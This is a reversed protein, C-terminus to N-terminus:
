VIVIEINHKELLKKILIKANNESHLFIKSFEIPNAGEDLVVIKCGTRFAPDLALIKKGYEPKTMLLASLNTQFVSIADDEAVESLM